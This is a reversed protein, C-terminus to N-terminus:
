GVFVLGTNRRAIHCERAPYEKSDGVARFYQGYSHQGSLVKREGRYYFVAGPLIRGPTNYYRTSQKVTLRSRLRETTQLGYQEATKAFWTELSDTKQEFRAKRNKAIVKGDLYYTRERMNNVVARNQRRFQKIRYVRGFSPGATPVLEKAQLGICYADVEHLPEEKTKEFGLSNRALSTERGTCYRVHDRGYAEELRQCIHPIAQNLASLAHYKKLQGQKKAKLKSAANSDKHVLEHCANCLGARNHLGESGGCHRPVIHHYAQVPAKGCLLCLGHQQDHVAAKVNAYGKLPGNQFDLGTASPDDLLLFAFRNVEIAVDTVPLFKQIKRVLNLHTRVLQEVTPTLWNKPRRRNCFRAETNRIDRCTIYKEEGFSPLKRMVMGAKLTTHFRRAIRQRAKREGNRSARRHQRREDMLKRIEKNRTEVVASFYLEGKTSIAAVGINTRGPDEAVLVPQLVPTNEYLLQVTFPVQEAIRAKGTQLLHQIHRKRKTPMQPKGDKGIVFLYEPM